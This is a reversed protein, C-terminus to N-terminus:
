VAHRPAPTRFVFRWLPYSWSVFVLNSTALRVLAYLGPQPPVLRMAGDYLVGNLALAVTEVIVFLLAQRALGEKDARFVFGRNAFFQVAGGAVLAPVNAVRPDLHFLSVLVALTALDVATAAGGALLARLFRLMANGHHLPQVVRPM